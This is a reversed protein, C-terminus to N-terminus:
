VTKLVLSLHSRGSLIIVMEFILEWFFRFKEFLVAREAVAESDFSKANKVFFRRWGGSLELQGDRALSCLEMPACSLRKRCALEAGLFSRLFISPLHHSSPAAIIAAIAQTSNVIRWGQM